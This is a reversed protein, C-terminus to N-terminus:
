LILRLPIGDVWGSPVRTEKLDADFEARDRPDETLPVIRTVFCAVKIGKATRGEWVRAPVSGVHGEVEVMKETSEITIKMGPGALAL